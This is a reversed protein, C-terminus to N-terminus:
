WCGKKSKRFVLFSNTASGTSPTPRRLREVGSHDLRRGSARPRSWPWMRSTWLPTVTWLSRRRSCRTRGRSRRAAFALLAIAALLPLGLLQWALALVVLPALLVAAIIRRPVSGHVLGGLRGLTAYYAAIALRGVASAALTDDRFRRLRQTLPDDDGFTEAILCMGGETRGGRQHIDEWVDTTGPKVMPYLYTAAANGAHDVAVFLIETRVEDRLGTIRMTTASPDLQQGCLYTPDLQAIGQALPVSTDADVSPDAGVDVPSPVLPVDLSEGCLQRATIYLPAPPSGTFAQAGSFTACLAQYGAIDSTDAPPTWALEIAGSASVARFGTPLPPPLADTAIPQGVFYDLVGDGNGDAIAWQAAMIQRSDCTNSTPEPEMLDFVRVEPAVGAAPITSLDAITASTVRHCQAARMAADDCGSGVWTELPRQVPATGATLLLQYAYTGEVYGPKAAGTQSCACHALNFYRAVAAASSAVALQPNGNEHIRLEGFSITAGGPLTTDARASGGASACLTVVIAGAVRM